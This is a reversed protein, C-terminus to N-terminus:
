PLPQENEVVEKIAEYLEQVCKKDVNVIWGKDTGEIDVSLSVNEGFTDLKCKAIKYSM